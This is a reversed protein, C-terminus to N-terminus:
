QERLAESPELRSARWAPALSPQKAPLLALLAIGIVGFIVIDWPSDKRHMGHAAAEASQISMTFGHALSSWAGYAILSRHQAPQKVALLLFVGLVTNLSLFMPMVDNHGNLWRSHWLAGFLFYGWFSYLVGVLVLVVRLIHERKM